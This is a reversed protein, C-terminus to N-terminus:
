YENALYKLAHKALTNRNLSKYSAAVQDVAKNFSLDSHRFTDLVKEVARRYDKPVHYENTTVIHNLDIKTTKRTYHKYSM